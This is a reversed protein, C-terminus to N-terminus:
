FCFAKWLGCEKKLNEKKKSSRVFLNLVGFAVRFGSILVRFVFGYSFLFFFYFILLVFFIHGCEWREKKKRKREQFFVMLPVKNNMKGRKKEKESCFFVHVGFCFMYRQQRCLGVDKKNKSLM